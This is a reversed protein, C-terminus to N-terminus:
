LGSVRFGLSCREHSQLFGKRVFTMSPIRKALLPGSRRFLRACVDEKHSLM